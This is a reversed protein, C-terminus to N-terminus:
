FNKQAAFQFRTADGSTGDSNDLEGYIVEFGFNTTPWPSFMYNLHITDLTDIGNSRIPDDNEFHGFALTSSTTPSWQYVLAANISASEVAEVSGDTNVFVDNAFGNIIYRGIGEGFTTSASLTLADGLEWAGALNVGWGTDSDDIRAGALGSGLPAIGDVSLDRWVGALEYSGGAGGPGGRWAVTVDPVGDDGIGGTSERLRGAAGAGDTEPNELSVSFGSPSTWRIQTQRAFSKGAPGFFDITSPYAVFDMFNSWTQGITWTGNGTKYDAYAHRLRFSTSNSFSQNGGGGFFDGELHTSISNGNGTDTLTKVRLRSQRAHFRTHGNKDAASTGDAPISSAIFSDGLDSNSDYIFDGKVYGSVSISTNTGPLKFSGPIDGAVVAKENSSTEAQTAQETELKEIRQLLQEVQTKLEDVSDAAAISSYGIMLAISSGALTQAVQRSLPRSIFRTHAKKM